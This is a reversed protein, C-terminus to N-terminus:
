ADGGGARVGCHEWIFRDGDPHDMMLAAAFLFDCREHFDHDTPSMGLDRGAAFLDQIVARSEPTRAPTARIRPIFDRVVDQWTSYRKRPTSDSCNM